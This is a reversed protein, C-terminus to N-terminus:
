RISKLKMTLCINQKQWLIIQMLTWGPLPNCHIEAEFGTSEASGIPKWTGDPLTELQNNKRM